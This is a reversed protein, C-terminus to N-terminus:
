PPESFFEIKKTPHPECFSDLPSNGLFTPSPCNASKLPPSPLFSPHHCKQPPKIGWRVSHNALIFKLVLRM